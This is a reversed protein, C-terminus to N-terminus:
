LHFGELPKATGAGSFSSIYSILGTHPAFQRFLRDTGQTTLLDAPTIKGALASDELFLKAIRQMSAQTMGLDVKKIRRVDAPIYKLFATDNETNAMEELIATQEKTFTRNTGIPVNDTIGIAKRIADWYFIFKHAETTSNIRRAEVFCLECAAAYGESRLLENLQAIQTPTLGNTHKNEMLFTTLTDLAIRKVCLTGLDVNYVYDGNKVFIPRIPLWGLEDEFRLLGMEPVKKTGDSNFIDTEKGKEQWEKM